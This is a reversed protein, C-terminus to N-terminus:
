DGTDFMDIDEAMTAESGMAQALRKEMDLINKV